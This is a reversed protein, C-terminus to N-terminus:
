LFHHELIIEVPALAQGAGPNVAIMRDIEEPGEIERRYAILDAITILPLGHADAFGRLQKGRMMTGDDNVLEGIVGGPELGALRTLDVAAETHGPRALVGGSAARLPLIHGPKSFDSPVTAPDVLARATLARDDASIGTTTGHRYDVTITFATAIADSNRQVMLPIGLAGLREGPLPVCLLGSSYRVLFAISARDAFEAVPILDGENERSEDDAVVVMSGAAIARVATAISDVKLM